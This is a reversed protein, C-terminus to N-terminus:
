WYRRDRCLKYHRNLEPQAQSIANLIATNTGGRASLVARMKAEYYAELYHGKHLGRKLIQRYLAKLERGDMRLELIKDMDPILVRDELHKLEINVPMKSIWIRQYARRSGNATINPYDFVRAVWADVVSIRQIRQIIRQCLDLPAFIGSGLKDLVALLEPIEDHQLHMDNHLLAQALWVHPPLRKHRTGFSECMDYLHHFLVLAADYEAKDLSNVCLLQKAYEAAYQLWEDPRIYKYPDQLHCTFNYSYNDMVTTNFINLVIYM